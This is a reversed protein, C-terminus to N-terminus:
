QRRAAQAAASANRALTSSRALQIQDETLENGAVLGPRMVNQLNENETEMHDLGLLHGFEHAFVRGRNNATLTSPLICTGRSAQGGLDWRQFRHVLLLTIRGRRGHTHNILYQFTDDNIVTVNGPPQFRRTLARTPSFVIKGSAWILNAGTIAANLSESNWGSDVQDTTRVRERRQQIRNGVRVQRTRIEYRPIELVVFLPDVPITIQIM